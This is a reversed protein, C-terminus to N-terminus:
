SLALLSGEKVSPYIDEYTLVNTYDVRRNIHKRLLAEHSDNGTAAVIEVLAKITKHHYNYVRVRKDTVDLGKILSRDQTAVGVPCKNSNCQLAQICGLAMMMARASGCFDAGMALSKIMDFGTVIKGSAMLKIHKKLGYGVLTDYAFALGERAPTGVSDSFEVPAAGTGGEGGDVTIFDPYIGTDIIAECIANFEEKKGICLKFGVPRGGALERMQQILEMMERESNFAKHRPPSLVAKGPTVGRIAAIEPTNKKAPLIGGHGPKAGQSLKLEIMKVNEHDVTRKFKEASFNGDDARCGFYGTGVQWILDGGPNLHYPSVGGEGTNHAFNGMKAGGNLAMVARDSLSGYSMASVNLLSSSYPQTCQPGGVLVRPDEELDHHDKAYISHDIWEYGEAYIDKQTGFPSTDNVNKSRQYVMSRFIRNFPRGELDTEVFYQQIEPRFAELMYRFHGIVPFNKLITHKTQLMDYIGVLIIPGFLVFSWLIPRWWFWAVAGIAACLLLSIIVFAKRM